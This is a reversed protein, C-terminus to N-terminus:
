LGWLFARTRIYIPILGFRKFNHLNVEFIDNVLFRQGHFLDAMEVVFLKGEVLPRSHIDVGAEFQHSVRILFTPGIAQSEKQPHKGPKSTVADRHGDDKRHISSFLKTPFGPEFQNLESFEQRSEATGNDLVMSGARLLVSINFAGMTGIVLLEVDGSQKGNMGMLVEELFGHIIEIVVVGDSLM